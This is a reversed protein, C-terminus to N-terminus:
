IQDVGLNHLYVLHIIIELEDAQECVIFLMEGLYIWFRIPVNKSM